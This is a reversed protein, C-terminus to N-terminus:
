KGPFSLPSKEVLRVSTTPENLANQFELGSVVIYYVCLGLAIIWLLSTAIEKPRIGFCGDFFWHHAHPTKDIPQGHHSQGNMTPTGMNSSKDELERDLSSAASTYVTNSAM